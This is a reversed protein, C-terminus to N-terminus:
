RNRGGRRTWIAIVGCEADPNLFEAPVTSLGRYIEIGEVSAPSVVDDIRFDAPLMGRRDGLVRKNLLFGDVFIQTACNGSLSRSVRVTPRSGQGSGTVMLGPVERLLDTVHLPNRAEVQERTIYVGNGTRLRLRFNELLPSRDVESWAIVELPALLIADPDLRVEVQFFKRHDFHLLPTTNTTYSLRSAMIRVASAREVEFEFSGDASSLTRALVAGDRALLTIEAQGLPAETVDDIIRGVIWVQGASPAPLVLALVLFILHWFRM